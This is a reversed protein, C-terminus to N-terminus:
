SCQAFAAVFDLYDFFDVTNDGNFDASPDETAFAAVFDLYDFFDVSNDGNFDAPACPDGGSPIEFIYILRNLFDSIALRKNAADWSFSYYANGTPFAVPTTGDIDFFNVTKATGDFNVTRVVSAFAQGAGGTARNNYIIFDDADSLGHVIEVNNGVQNAVNGNGIVVRDVIVDNTAGRPAIIVNNGGRAVIMGTTPHIDLGRWLSSNATPPLPPSNLDPGGLGVEYITQGIAANLTTPNLGVPGFKAPEGLTFDLVAPIAGFTGFGLGDRGADFAPECIGRNSEGTPLGAEALVNPAFTAGVNTDFLRVQGPAANYGGADFTVVLQQQAINYDMGNFGRAWPMNTQSAPIGVVDPGTTLVNILKVLRQSQPTITSNNNFGGVYLVDGVLAISAVNNGIFNVNTNSFLGSQTTNFDIARVLKFDVALASASVGCVLGCVATMMAIRNKM